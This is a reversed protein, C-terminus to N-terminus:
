PSGGPRDALSSESIGRKMLHAAVVSLPAPFQLGAVAERAEAPPVGVRGLVDDDDAPRPVGPM